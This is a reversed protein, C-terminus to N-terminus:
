EIFVDYINLRNIQNKFDFLKNQESSMTKQKVSIQIQGLILNENVTGQLEYVSGGSLQKIESFRIDQM